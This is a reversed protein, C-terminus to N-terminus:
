RALDGSEHELMAPSATDSEIALRCDRLAPLFNSCQALAQPHSGIRRILGLPAPKLAILCNEVRHVEEGILHLNTQSLLDYTETISGTLSHEIPLCAVEAEGCVM